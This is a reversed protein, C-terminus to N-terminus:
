GCFGILIIVDDTVTTDRAGLPFGGRQCFDVAQNVDSPLLDTLVVIGICHLWTGFGRFWEVVTWSRVLWGGVGPSCPRAVKSM